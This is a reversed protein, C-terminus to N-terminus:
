IFIVIYPANLDLVADIKTEFFSFLVGKFFLPGAPSLLNSGHVIVIGGMGCLCRAL